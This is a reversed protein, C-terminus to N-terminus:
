SIHPGWLFSKMGHALRDPLDAILNDTRAKLSSHVDNFNPTWDKQHFENRFTEVTHELAGIRSELSRVQESKPLEHHLEEMRGQIMGTLRSLEHFLNEIQHGTVQLRNHLDAFQMDQSKLSSALVDDLLKITEADTKGGERPIVKQTLHDRDIHAPPISTVFKFVEFSDPTDSSAATVGFYYNAPLLVKM